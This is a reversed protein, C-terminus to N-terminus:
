SAPVTVVKVCTKLLKAEIADPTAIREFFDELYSTAKKRTGADMLPVEAIVKLLSARKAQFTEAMPAVGANHSCFGRYRRVKVGASQIEAPSVAYPADVLGSYDFDYPIPAFGSTADAKAAVLRANHCCTEGAPGGNMGWDLNGIMDQFLAFRVSARPDLQTSPIRGKPKMQHLGHRDAMDGVDEIFFGLRSTIPQGKDNVYDIQALRVAFSTPSLESFLRYAAYELLVNQQFGPDRRCHTVLKLKDQGQFLSGKPPKAPFEVRLPPFACTERKRRTIGRLQLTVPLTEPAAGQVSLTGDVVADPKSAPLAVIPGKITLRIVESDAFLPKPAKATAPSVLLLATVAVFLQKLM